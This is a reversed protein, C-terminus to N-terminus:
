NITDTSCQFAKERVPTSALISILLFIGQGGVFLIFMYDLTEVQFFENVFGISWSIGTVLLLRVYVVINANPKRYTSVAVSISIIKCVTLTYFICNCIVTLLIPTAFLALRMEQSDIHCSEAGYGSVLKTGSIDINSYIVNCLVFCVPLGYIYLCATSVIQRFPHNISDIYKVMIVCYANMAFVATLWFYHLAMGMPQCVHPYETWGSGFQFVVQAIFLNVMACIYVCIPANNIKNLKLCICLSIIISCMSLCSVTLSFIGKRSPMATVPLSFQVLKEYTEQCVLYTQNMADFVTNFMIPCIVTEPFQNDNDCNSGLIQCYESKSMSIYPCYLPVNAQFTTDNLTYDMNFNDVIMSKQIRTPYMSFVYIQGFFYLEVIYEFTKNNVIVSINEKKIHLCSIAQIFYYYDCSQTEEFQASVVGYEVTDGPSLHFTIFRENITIKCEPSNLISVFYGLIDEHFITRKENVTHINIDEKTLLHNMDVPLLGIDVSFYAKQGVKNAPQKVCKGFSPLTHKMCHLQRCTHYVIDFIEHEECLYKQYTKDSKLTAVSDLNINLITDLSNFPGASGRDNPECVLEDIDTSDPNNCLLCFINRYHHNYFANSVPVNAFPDLCAEELTQDVGGWWGTANCTKIDEGENFCRYKQLDQSPPYSLLVCSNLISEIQANMGIMNEEDNIESACGIALLTWREYEYVGNCEACHRNRFLVNEKSSFVAVIDAFNMVNPSTELTQCVTGDACDVVM